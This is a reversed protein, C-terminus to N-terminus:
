SSNLSIRDFTYIPRLTFYVKNKESKLSVQIKEVYKRCVSLHLDEHFDTWNSSLQEMLVSKRSPRVSMIFSIIAQRLKAFAGSFSYCLIIYCWHYNQTLFEFSLSRELPFKRLHRYVLCSIGHLKVNYCMRNLNMAGRNDKSDSEM